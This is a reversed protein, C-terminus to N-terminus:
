KAQRARIVLWTKRTVFLAVQSLVSAGYARASLSLQEMAQSLSGAQAKDIAGRTRIEAHPMRANCPAHRIKSGSFRAAQKIRASVIRERM